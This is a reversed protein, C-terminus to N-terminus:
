KAPLTLAAWGLAIIVFIFMVNVWNLEPTCLRSALAFVGGVVLCKFALKRTM